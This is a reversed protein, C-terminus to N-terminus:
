NGDEVYLGSGSIYVIEGKGISSPVDGLSAFVPLKVGEFLRAYRGDHNHGAVAAGIQSTTVNHPNTTDAVHASFDGDLALARWGGFDSDYVELQDNETNWFQHGPGPNSPRDATAGSSSEIRSNTLSILHKLDKIMHFMAYDDYEEIPPVDGTYSYGSPYATGQEGWDLLQTTYSAM